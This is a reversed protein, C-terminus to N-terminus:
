DLWRSPRGQFLECHSLITNVFIVLFILCPKSNMNQQLPIGTLVAKRPFHGLEAVSDNRNSFSTRRERRWIPNPDHEGSVHDSRM